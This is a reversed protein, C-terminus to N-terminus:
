CKTSGSHKNGREYSNEVPGKDQALHIWDM